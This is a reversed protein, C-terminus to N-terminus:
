PWYAAKNTGMLTRWNRKMYIRADQLNEFSAIFQASDNWYLEWPNNAFRVIIFPGCEVYGRDKKKWSRNIDM